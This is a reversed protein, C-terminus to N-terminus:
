TIIQVKLKDVNAIDIMHRTGRSKQDWFAILNTSYWSMFKNRLLGAYYRDRDWPAPFKQLHLTSSARKNQEYYEIAISDPGSACGSVLTVDSLSKLKAWVKDPYPYDRSGAIIYRKQPLLNLKQLWVGPLKLNKHYPLESSFLELIQKDLSHELYFPFVLFYRDPYLSVQHFFHKINNKIVKFPLPKQDRNMVPLAYSNGQMGTLNPAAGYFRVIDKAINTTHAGGTDTAFVPYFRSDLINIVPRNAGTRIDVM